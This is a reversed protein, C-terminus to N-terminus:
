WPKKSGVFDAPWECESPGTYKVPGLDLQGEPQDEPPDEPQDEPQCHCLAVTVVVAVTDTGTPVPETPVM